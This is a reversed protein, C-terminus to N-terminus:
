AVWRPPKAYNLNQEKPASRSAHKARAAEAVLLVLLEAVPAVAAAVRVVQQHVTPALAQVLQEVPLVRHVAAAQVPLVPVLAVQVVPASSLRAQVVPAVLAVQVDVPVAQVV